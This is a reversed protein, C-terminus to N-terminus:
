LWKEVIKDIIKFPLMFILMLLAIPWCVSLCFAYDREDLNNYRKKLYTLFVAYTVFIIIIYCIIITLGTM